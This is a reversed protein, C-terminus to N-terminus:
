QSSKFLSKSVALYASILGVTLALLCTIGCTFLNPQNLSFDTQYEAALPALSLNFLYIV